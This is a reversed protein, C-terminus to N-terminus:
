GPGADGAPVVPGTTFAYASGSNFIARTDVGIAGVVVRSGDASYAVSHGFHDFAVAALPVLTAGATWAVGARSFVFASGAGVRHSDDAQPAGVIALLGDASLSVSSGFRDGAAPHTSLLVAEISWASGSRVFITASGADVDSSTDDAYAGM